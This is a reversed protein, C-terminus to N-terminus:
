DKQIDSGYQRKSCESQANFRRQCLNQNTTVLTGAAIKPPVRPWHLIKIFANASACFFGQGMEKSQAPRQLQSENKGSQSFAM